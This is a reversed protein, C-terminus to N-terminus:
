KRGTAAVEQARGEEAAEQLVRWGIARASLRFHALVAVWALGGRLAATEIPADFLLSLLGCAAGVAVALRNGLANWAPPCARISRSM